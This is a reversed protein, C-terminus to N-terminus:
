QERRLHEVERIRAELFETIGFARAFEKTATVSDVIAKEAIAKFPGLDDVTIGFTGIYRTADTMSGADVLSVIKDIAKPKFQKPTKGYLGVLEAIQQVGDIDNIDYFRKMAKIAESQLSELEERTMDLTRIASAAEFGSEEERLIRIAINETIGFARAFEVVRDSKGRWSLPHIRVTEAVEKFPAVEGKTIHLAEVYRMVEWILDSNETGLLFSIENIAKQRLTELMKDSLGFLEVIRPIVEIENADFVRKAAKIAEPQLSELEERTLNSKGITEKLRWEFDSASIIPKRTLLAKMMEYGEKRTQSLSTKDFGSLPTTKDISMIDGYM